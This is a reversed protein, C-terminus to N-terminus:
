FEKWIEIRGSIQEVVFELIELPNKCVSRAANV